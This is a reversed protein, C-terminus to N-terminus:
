ILELVRNEQMLDEIAEEIDIELIDEDDEMNIWNEVVTETESAEIDDEQVLFDQLAITVSNTDLNHAKAKVTLESLM